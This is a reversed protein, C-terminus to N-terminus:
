LRVYYEILHIVIHATTREAESLVVRNADGATIRDGVFPRCHLWDSYCRTFEDMFRDRREDSENRWMLACVAPWILSMHLLLLLSHSVDLVGQFQSRSSMQQMLKPYDIISESMPDRDFNRPTNTIICKTQNMLDLLRNGSGEVLLQRMISTM